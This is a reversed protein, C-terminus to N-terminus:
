YISPNTMGSYLSCGDVHKDKPDIQSSCCLGYGTVCNPDPYKTATKSNREPIMPPEETGQVDPLQIKKLSDIILGGLAEGPSNGNDLSVDLGGPNLNQKIIQDDQSFYQNATSVDPSASAIENHKPNDLGVQDVTPNLQYPDANYAIDNSAVTFGLGSNGQELNDNQSAATAGLNGSTDYAEQPVPTAIVATTALLLGLNIVRM